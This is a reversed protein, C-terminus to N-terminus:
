LIGGERMAAKFAAIYEKPTLGSRRLDVAHAELLPLLRAAWIEAGSEEGNDRFASLLKQTRKKANETLRLNFRAPRKESGNSM